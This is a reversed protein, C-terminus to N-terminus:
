FFIDSSFFNELKKMIKKKERRVSFRYCKVIKNNKKEVELVLLFFNGRNIKEKHSIYFFNGFFILDHKNKM